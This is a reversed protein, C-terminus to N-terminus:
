KHRNQLTIIGFWKASLSQKLCKLIILVVNWNSHFLIPGSTVGTIGDWRAFNCYKKIRMLSNIRYINGNYNICMCCKDSENSWMLKKHTKLPTKCNMKAIKKAKIIIPYILASLLCLPLSLPPPSPMPFPGRTPIRVRSMWLATHRHATHRRAAWFATMASTCTNKHVYKSNTCMKANLNLM